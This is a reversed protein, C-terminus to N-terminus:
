PGSCLTHNVTVLIGVGNRKQNEEYAEHNVKRGWNACNKCRSQLQGMVVYTRCNRGRNGSLRAVVYTTARIDRVIAYCMVIPPEVFRGDNWVVMSHQLIYPTTLALLPSPWKQRDSGHQVWSNAGSTISCLPGARLPPIRRM